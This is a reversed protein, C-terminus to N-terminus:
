SSAEASHDNCDIDELVLLGFSYIDSSTTTSSRDLTECRNARSTRAASDVLTGMCVMCLLRMDLEWGELRDVIECRAGFRSPARFVRSVHVLRPRSPPWCIFAFYILMSLTPNAYYRYASHLVASARSQYPIASASVWFTVTVTVYLEDLPIPYAPYGSIFSATHARRWERQQGRPIILRSLRHDFPLPVLTTRTRLNTESGGSGCRGVTVYRGGAGRWVPRVLVMYQRGLVSASAQFIPLRGRGMKGGGDKGGM